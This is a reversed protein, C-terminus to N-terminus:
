SVAMGCKQWGIALATGDRSWRLVSAPGVEESEFHWSSLSLTKMLMCPDGPTYGIHLQDVTGDRLGLTALMRRIFIYFFDAM